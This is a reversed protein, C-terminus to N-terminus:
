TLSLCASAYVTDHHRVRKGGEKWLFQAFPQAIDLTDLHRVALEGLQQATQVRRAGATDLVFTLVMGTDVLTHLCATASMCAFNHSCCVKSRGQVRYVDITTTAPAAATCATHTSVAGCPIDNCLAGDMAWRGAKPM